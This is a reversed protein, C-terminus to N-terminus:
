VEIEEREDTTAAAQRQAGHVVWLTTELTAALGAVTPTEFLRALPLQVDFTSHIRSMVQTALLSHGGLAFFDDHVGVRQLGLVEAWIGTLRQEVTTRPAVFGDAPIFQDHHPRPLAQRDVKGTPTLPLTELVVFASPRM